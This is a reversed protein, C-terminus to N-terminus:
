ERCRGVTQLLWKADSLDFQVNRNTLVAVAGAYGAVHLDSMRCALGTPWGIFRARTIRRRLSRFTRCRGVCATM